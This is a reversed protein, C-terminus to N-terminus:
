VALDVQQVSDTTGNENVAVSTSQVKGLLQDTASKIDFPTAIAQLSIAGIGLSSLSSLNSSGDANITWVKLQNYVPDSQDIWGNHNADYQALEAFGNGTTPGFLDSGSTIKGSNNKDLVLFGSGASPANIQVQQGNSNLDFSFKQDNLQAATGNFNVVLPDALTADGMRIKTTSTQTTQHQMNLNLSFKIQQGDTTNIVGSAQMTTQESESVTNTQNYDVGYGAHPKAQVQAASNPDALQPTPPANLQSPDFVSITQGTMRELLQVLVQLNPDLTTNQAGQVMAALSQAAPSISVQSSPQPAPPADVWARLNESVSSEVSQTSSSQMSLSYSAIQM